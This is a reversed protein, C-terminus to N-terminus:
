PQGRRLRYTRTCATRRCARGPWSRCAAVARTRKGTGPFRYSARRAMIAAPLGNNPKIASVIRAAHSDLAGMAEAGVGLAWGAVGTATAAGSLVGQGVGDAWGGFQGTPPGTGGSNLPLQTSTRLGDYRTSKCQLSKLKERTM